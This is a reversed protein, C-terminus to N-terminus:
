FTGRLLQAMVVVPTEGKSNTEGVDPIITPFAFKVKGNEVEAFARSAQVVGFSVGALTGIAAGYGLYDLHDGPKDTFALLAAGVLTGTLGGYFGDQFIEQVANEAAMCPTCWNFACIATVFCIFIKCFRKM